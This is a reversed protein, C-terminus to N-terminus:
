KTRGTQEARGFVHERWHHEAKDVAMDLPVIDGLTRQCHDCFVWYEISGIEDEAISIFEPLDPMNNTELTM